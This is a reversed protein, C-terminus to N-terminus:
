FCYQHMLQLMGIGVVGLVFYLDPYSIVGQEDDIAHSSLCPASFLEISNACIM